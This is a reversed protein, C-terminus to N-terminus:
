GLNQLHIASWNYPFCYILQKMGKNKKDQIIKYNEFLTEIKKNEQFWKVLMTKKTVFNDRIKLYKRQVTLLVAFCFVSTIINAKTHRYCFPNCQAM